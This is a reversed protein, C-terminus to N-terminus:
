QENRLEGNRWDIFNRGRSTISIHGKDMLFPEIHNKLTEIDIGLSRSITQLSARGIRSLFKLYRMDLDTYGGKFIGIEEFAAIIGPITKNHYGRDIIFKVRKLYNKAVRPNGRSREAILKATGDTIPFNLDKGYNVIITCINEVTYEAFSLVICRSTFPDPLVGAETTCFIIVKNASDMIPYFNEFGKAMHIEDIIHARLRELGYPLRLDDKPIQYSFNRGAIEYCFIRSLTTKGCGAPGRLLINIGDKKNKLGTAIADLERVIQRQGIFFEFM